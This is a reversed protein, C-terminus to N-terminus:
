ITRKEETKHERRQINCYINRYKDEVNYGHIWEYKNNMFRRHRTSKTLLSKNEKHQNDKEM